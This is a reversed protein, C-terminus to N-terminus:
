LRLLVFIAAKVEFIYEAGDSGGMNDCVLELCRRCRRFFVFLPLSPVSFVLLFIVHNHFGKLRRRLLTANIYHNNIAM